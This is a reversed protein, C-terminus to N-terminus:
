QSSDLVEHDTIMEPPNRKVFLACLLAFLISLVLSGFFQKVYNWPSNADAMREDMKSIAEDVKDDPVNMEQMWKMTSEKIVEGLNKNYEPDIVNVFIVMFLNNIFYGIVGIFFMVKVAEFYKMYGGNERREAMGGMVMFASLVFIGLLMFYFFRGFFDFYLSYILVFILISALGFYFGYMVYPRKFFPTNM